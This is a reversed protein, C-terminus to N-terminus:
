FSGFGPSKKVEDAALPYIGCSPLYYKQSTMFSTIVEGVSVIQQIDVLSVKQM